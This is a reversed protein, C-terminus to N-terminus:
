KFNLEKFNLEKLVSIELVILFLFVIFIMRGRLIFFYVSRLMFSVFFFGKLFSVM